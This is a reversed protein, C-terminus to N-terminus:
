NFPVGQSDQSVTCIEIIAWVWSIIGGYGCTLITILLQAIAKGNYGAYFNHIGLAGLFVGLLAFATRNKPPPVYMYQQPVYGPQAANPYGAPYTPYPTPAPAPQSPAAPEPAPPFFGGFTFIPESRQPEQQAPAPPQTANPPPPPAVTQPQTSPAPEAAAADPTTTSTTTMPASPFLMYTAGAIANQAESSTVSVKPEEVPAQTCGFVTCGGNEEFCDRHHPTGCGTCVMENDGPEVEMRCYPCIASM